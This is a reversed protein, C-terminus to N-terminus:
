APVFYPASIEDTLARFTVQLPMGVALSSEDTDVVQTMLRPGEALDVVAAVYPVQEAFPHLDNRHVVSYTYLTAQGSAEEWRVNESWCTPCFPRPYHHAQGCDDCRRILLRGQAAADWFPQTEPEITPLDSRRAATTM